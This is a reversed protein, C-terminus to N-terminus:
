AGYDRARETSDEKAKYYESMKIQIMDDSPNRCNSLYGYVEDEGNSWMAYKGCDMYPWYWIINKRTRGIDCHKVVEEENLKQMKSNKKFRHCGQVTDKMIQGSYKEVEEDSLEITMRDGEIYSNGSFAYKNYFAKSLDHLKQRESLADMYNNYMKSGKKLRFAFDNIVNTDYM